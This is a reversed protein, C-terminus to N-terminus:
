KTKVAIMDESPCMCMGNKCFADPWVASCQVDYFCGSESPSIESFPSLIYGSSLSSVSERLLLRRRRHLHLSLSVPRHLLVNWRPLGHQLLLRRRGPRVRLLSHREIPGPKASNGSTGQAHFIMTAPDICEFSTLSFHTHGDSSCSEQSWKGGKCILYSSPEM